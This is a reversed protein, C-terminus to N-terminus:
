SFVPELMSDHPNITFGLHGQNPALGSPTQQTPSSILAISIFHGKLLRSLVM